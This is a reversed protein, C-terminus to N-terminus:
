DLRKIVCAGSKEPAQTLTLSKCCSRMAFPFNRHTLVRAPLADHDAEILRDPRDKEAFASAILRNGRVAPTCILRAPDLEDVPQEVVSM